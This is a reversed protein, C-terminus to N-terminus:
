APFNQTFLTTSPDAEGPTAGEPRAVLKLAQPTSADQDQATIKVTDFECASGTTNKRRPGTMDGLGQVYDKNYMVLAEFVPATLRIVLAVGSNPASIRGPLLEYGEVTTQAALSSALSVAALLGISIRM